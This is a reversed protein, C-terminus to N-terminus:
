PGINCIVEEVRTKGEPLLAPARLFQQNTENFVPPTNKFSSRFVNHCFMPVETELGLM